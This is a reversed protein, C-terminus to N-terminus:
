IVLASSEDNIGLRDPVTCLKYLEPYRFFRLFLAGSFVAGCAAGKGRSGIGHLRRHEAGNKLGAERLLLESM